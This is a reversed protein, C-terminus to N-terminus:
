ESDMGNAEWGLSTLHVGHSQQKIGAGEVWEKVNPFAAQIEQSKAWDALGEIRYHYKVDAAQYDGLKMPGEWKVVKDLAKNGYCLEGRVEGEKPKSFRGQSERFHQRGRDTLDYRTIKQTRGTPKGTYSLVPKEVELSSVLGQSALAEMRGAPGAGGFPSGMKKEIEGLETPWTQDNLCLAGKKALYADIAAGFNKESPDKKSTCGSILAVLAVTLAVGKM